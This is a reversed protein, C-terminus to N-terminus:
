KSACEDGTGRARSVDNTLTRGCMWCRELKEAFLMQSAELGYEVIKRLIAVDQKFGNTDYLNDSARIQVKKFGNAKTSVRYFHIVDGEGPIAYNGDTIAKFDIRGASASVEVQAEVVPKAEVKPLKLLFKIFRTSQKKNKKIGEIVEATLANYQREVVLADILNKQATSAETLNVKAPAADNIYTREGGYGVSYRESSGADRYTPQGNVTRQRAAKNKEVTERLRALVASQAPTSTM